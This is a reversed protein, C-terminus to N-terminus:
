NCAVFSFFTDYSLMSVVDVILFNHGDLLIDM